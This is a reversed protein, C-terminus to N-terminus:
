PSGRRRPPHMAQAQEILWGSGRGLGRKVGGGGGVPPLAASILPPAAARGPPVASEQRARLERVTAPHWLDWMLKKVRALPVLLDRRAGSADSRARPSTTLMSLTFVPGRADADSSSVESVQLLKTSGHM